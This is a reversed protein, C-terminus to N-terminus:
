SWWDRGEGIGICDNEASHAAAIHIGINMLWARRFALVTDKQEIVYVTFEVGQRYHKQLNRM